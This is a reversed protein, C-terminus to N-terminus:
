KKDKINHGDKHLWMRKGDASGGIICAAAKSPSTFSVDVVFHGNKVKEEAVLQFRSNHIYAPCSLTEEVSFESDKQVIFANDKFYGTAAAKKGSLHLIEVDPERQSPFIGEPFM